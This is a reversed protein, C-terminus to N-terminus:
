VGIGQHMLDGPAEAPRGGAAIMRAMARKPLTNRFRLGAFAEGSWAVTAELALDEWRVVVKTGPLPPLMMRLRAGRRSIDILWASMESHAEVQVPLACAHRAERRRRHIRATVITGVSVVLCGVLGLLFM